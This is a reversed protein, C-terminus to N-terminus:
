MSGKREMEGEEEGLTERESSGAMKPARLLLFLITFYLLQTIIMVIILQTIIIIVSSGAM